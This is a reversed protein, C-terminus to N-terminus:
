KIQGIRTIKNKKDISDISDISYLPKMFVEKSKLHIM